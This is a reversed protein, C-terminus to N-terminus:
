DYAWLFNAFAILALWNLQFALKVFYDPDPPIHWLIHWSPDNEHVRSLIICIWGGRKAGSHCCAPSLMLVLTDLWVTAMIFLVYFSLSPASFHYSDEVWVKCASSEKSLSIFSAPPSLSLFSHKMTMFAKM